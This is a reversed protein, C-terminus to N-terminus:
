WLNHFRHICRGFRNRDIIALWWQGSTVSSKSLTCTGFNLTETGVVQQWPIIWHRYVGYGARFVAYLFYVSALTESM